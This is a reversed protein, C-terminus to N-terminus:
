PNLSPVYLFGYASCYGRETVRQLHFKLHIIRLPLEYRATVCQTETIYVLRNTSYLSIIAV